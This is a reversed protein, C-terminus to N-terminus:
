MYTHDANRLQSSVALSAHASSDASTGSVLAHIRLRNHLPLGPLVARSPQRTLVVETLLGWPDFRQSVVDKAFTECLVYRPALAFEHM